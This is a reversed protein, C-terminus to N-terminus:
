IHRHPKGEPDLPEILSNRILTPYDKNNPPVLLIKEDEIVTLGKALRKISGETLCIVTEIKVEYGDQDIIKVTMQDELIWKYAWQVGEAYGKLYEETWGLKDAAKKLETPQALLKAMNFSHSASAKRVESEKKM